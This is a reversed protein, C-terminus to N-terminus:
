KQGLGWDGIPKLKKTLIQNKFDDGSNKKALLKQRPVIVKDYFEQLNGYGLADAEIRYLMEYEKEKKKQKEMQELDKKEQKEKEM